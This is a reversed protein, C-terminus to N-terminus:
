LDVNRGSLLAAVRPVDDRRSLDLVPESVEIVTFREVRMAVRVADPIEYEGRSSRPTERIADFISANFRWCTMSILPDPGYAALTAADPKEVIGTLAGADNRDILAYGAIRAADINGELLGARRFGILGCGSLQRLARLSAVTYLNDSNIVIFEGGGAFQEAAAVASASGSPTQQVAFRIRLRRSQVREFYERVADPSGGTVICVERYGADALATLVYALFPQGAFPILGKLGLDAAASQAPELVADPAAARMREGRGAALVVARTVGSRGAGGQGGRRREGPGM